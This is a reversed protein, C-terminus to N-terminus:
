DEWARDWSRAAHRPCASGHPQCLVPINPGTHTQRLGRRSLEGSNPHWQHEPPLLSAGLLQWQLSMPKTVGLLPEQLCLGHLLSSFKLGAYSSKQQGKQATKIKTQDVDDTQNLCKTVSSCSKEKEPAWLTRSRGQRFCCSPDLTSTQVQGM